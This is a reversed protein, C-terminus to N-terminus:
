FTPPRTSAELRGKGVAQGLGVKRRHIDAAENFCSRTARRSQERKSRGGIFTPPRTSARLYQMADENPGLRGGIFTPPRTSAIRRALDTRHGLRGEASSHRRGRQLGSGCIGTALVPAGEASSHRRGRQLVA